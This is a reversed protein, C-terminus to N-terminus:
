ETAKKIAQKAREIEEVDLSYYQKDNDDPCTLAACEIIENLAKLLEPASAILKANAECQEKTKGYANAILIGGHYHPPTTAIANRYIPAAKENKIIPFVHVNFDTLHSKARKSWKGQTHKTKM